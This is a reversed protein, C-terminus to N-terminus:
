ETIVPAAEQKAAKKENRKEQWWLFLAAAVAALIGSSLKGLLLALVYNGPALEKAFGMTFALHDGLVFAGSVAFAMNMVRGKRDMGEVLSFTAISNALSSILGMVSDAGIGLLAGVKELPKKLLLSVVRLLPFVGSLLVAIEFVTGAAEGLPTMGPILTIGTLHTFVGVALGATIVVLLIKGIVRFVAVSIRPAKILGFCTLASLLLVPLLNLLLIGPAIGLLLGGFFCGFPLTAVGLLIGLLADEHCHAPISSLAVPITFSITVGLMGGVVLGHFAGLMPDKAMSMALSAGGMDNAILAGAMASPDFGVLGAVPTIVPSLLKGLVPAMMIMGLMSLTLPGLAEWGKEFERGLGLRNGFIRDLAGLISFAAFIYVLINM